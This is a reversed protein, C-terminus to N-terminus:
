IRFTFKDGRIWQRSLHLPKRAPRLGAPGVPAARRRDKTGLLRGVMSAAHGMSIDHVAHSPVLGHESLLGYLSGTLPDDFLFALASSFRNFELMVPENDALRLRCISIM